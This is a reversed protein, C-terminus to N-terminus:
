QASNEPFSLVKRMTRHLIGVEEYVDSIIEYDLALYFDIAYQRAHLFIASFGQNKAWKEAEMVLQRGVGHRQLAPDVAVQRMQVEQNAHPKMILVGVIEDGEFAAFHTQWDDDQTDISTLSLGLPKRLWADRKEVSQEYEKSQFPISRIKMCVGRQLITDSDLFIQYLLSVFIPCWISKECFFLQHPTLEKQKHDNSCPPHDMFM